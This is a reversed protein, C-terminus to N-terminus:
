TTFRIQSKFCCFNQTVQLSAGHLIISERIRVGAGITVGTSITVNPGLVATPDITATPHIYVN